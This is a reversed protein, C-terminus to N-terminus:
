GLHVRKRQLCLLIKNILVTIFNRLIIKLSQELVTKQPILKNREMLYNMLSVLPKKSFSIPVPRDSFQNIVAILYFEHKKLWGEIM